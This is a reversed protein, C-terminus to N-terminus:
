VSQLRAASKRTVCVTFPELPMWQMIALVTTCPHRALAERPGIHRSDLAERIRLHLPKALGLGMLAFKRFLKLPM